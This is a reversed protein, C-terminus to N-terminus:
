RSLDRAVNRRWDDGLAAVRLLARAEAPERRAGLRAATARHVTWEPHPRDVLRIEDGARVVGEELVRLYFGYRGSRMVLRLLEARHWYRSINRCPKRPQAIQLLATGVRWVDGLCADRETVRAVTFNEGFAGYPVDSWRLEASWREYHEHSYALVAMDAGGHHRRDAQRDGVLNERGVRVEGDV